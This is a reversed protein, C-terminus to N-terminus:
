FEYHVEDSNQLIFMFGAQMHLAYDLAESSFKEVANNTLTILHLSATMVM